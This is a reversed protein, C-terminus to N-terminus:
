ITAQATDITSFAEDFAYCEVMTWLACLVRLAGQIITQLVGLPPQTDLRM